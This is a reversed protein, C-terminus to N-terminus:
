GFILRAPCMTIDQVVRHMRLRKGSKITREFNHNQLVRYILFFAKQSISIRATLVHNTLLRRWGALKRREKCM